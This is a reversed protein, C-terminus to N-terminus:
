KSVRGKRAALKRQAAHKRAAREKNEKPAKHMKGTRPDTWDLGFEHCTQRAVEYLAPIEDWM